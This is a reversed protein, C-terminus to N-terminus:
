DVRQYIFSRYGYVDIEKILKYNCQTAYKEQLIRFVKNTNEMILMHSFQPIFKKCNPTHKKALKHDLDWFTNFYEKINEKYDDVYGNRQDVLYHVVPWEVNFRQYEMNSIHDVVHQYHKLIYIYKTSNEKSNTRGKKNNQYNFIILSIPILILLLYRKIPLKFILYIFLLYISYLVPYLYYFAKYIHLAMGLCYFSIPLVLYLLEKPLKDKKRYLLFLSVLSIGTLVFRGDYIFLWKIDFYLIKLYDILTKNIEDKAPSTSFSGYKFYNFIFYSLWALILFIDTLIYKIKEKKDKFQTLLDIILFTIMFALVTERANSLIVGWLLFAIYKRKFHFYIAGMAISGTFIDFRLNTSHVFFDPTMFLIFPALLHYWKLKPFLEKIFLTMFTLGISSYILMAFHIVFNKHGFVWTFLSTLLAFSIPHHAFKAPEYESFFYQFYNLTRGWYKLDVDYLITPREEYYFPINLFEFKCILM